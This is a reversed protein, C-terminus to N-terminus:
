REQPTAQMQPHGCAGQVCTTVSDLLIQFVFVPCPYGTACSNILRPMMMKSVQKTVLGIYSEAAKPQAHRFVYFTRGSMFVCTAISASSIVRFPLLATIRFLDPSVYSCRLLLCCNYCALLLMLICLVYVRLCLLNEPLPRARPGPRPGASSLRRSRRRARPAPPSAYKSISCLATATEFDLCTHQQTHMHM